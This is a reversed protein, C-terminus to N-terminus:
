VDKGRLSARVASAMTRAYASPGFSGSREIGNIRLTSLLDSDNLLRDLQYALSAPDGSKYVLGTVGDEVLDGPGWVATTDSVVIAAGAAMAEITVLVRMDLRSPVVVVDFCALLNPMESANAFGHFIVRDTISLQASLTQLEVMLPGDGVVTLSWDRDRTLLASAKLLEDVGKQPILKGAFGIRLQRDIAQLVRHNDNYACAFAETDAPCVGPSIQRPDMGNRIYFERNFAGTSVAGSCLHM